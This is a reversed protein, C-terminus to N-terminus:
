NTGVRGIVDEWVKPIAAKFAKDAANRKDRGGVKPGTINTVSELEGTKTNNITVKV